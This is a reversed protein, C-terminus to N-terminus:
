QEQRQCGTWGARLLLICLLMCQDDNARLWPFQKFPLMCITCMNMDLPQGLQPLEVAPVSEPVLPSPRTRTENLCAYKCACIWVAPSPAAAPSEDSIYTCLCLCINGTGQESRGNKSSANQQNNMQLSLLQLQMKRGSSGRDAAAQARQIPQQFGLLAMGVKAKTYYSV